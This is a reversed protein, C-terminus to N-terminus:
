GVRDAADARCPRHPLRLQDPGRHRAPQAVRHRSPAARWGADRAAGADPNFGSSAGDAPTPALYHPYVMQLLSQTFTPFEAAMKLQVRATLFAFGELLREVYPDAVETNGLGLRAAIKPFEAAFESGMDRMFALESEYLRLLRPDMLKSARPKGDRGCRATELEISTELFLQQPVPQAWLEGSIELVLTPLGDERDFPRARVRLTEPRIRPEYARIAEAVLTDLAGARGDQAGVGAIGPIGYNLRAAACWRARRFTKAGYRSQDREAALGFRALVARRLQLM